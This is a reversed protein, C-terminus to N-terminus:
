LECFASYGGRQRFRHNSQLENQNINHIEDGGIIPPIKQEQM